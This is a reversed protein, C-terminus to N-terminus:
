KLLLKSFGSTNRSSPITNLIEGLGPNFKVWKRVSGQAIAMSLFHVWVSLSFCDRVHTPNTGVVDSYIISARGVSSCFWVPAPRSYNLHHNAVFLCTLSPTVLLAQSSLVFLCILGFLIFEQNRVLFKRFLLHPM